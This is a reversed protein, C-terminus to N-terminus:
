SVATLQAAHVLVLINFISSTNDIYIYTAGFKPTSKNYTCMQVDRASHLEEVQNTM